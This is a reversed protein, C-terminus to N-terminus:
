GEAALEVHYNASRRERRHAELIALAEEPPVVRLADRDEWLAFRDMTELADEVDFHVDIGVKASLYREAEAGLRGAYGQGGDVNGTFCMAYCLLAEKHM